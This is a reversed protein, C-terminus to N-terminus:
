NHPPLSLYRGLQPTELLSPPTINKRPNPPYTGLFDGGSNTLIGSQNDNFAAESKLLYAPDSLASPTIVNFRYSPGM